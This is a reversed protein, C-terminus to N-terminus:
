SFYPFNSIEWGSAAEIIYKNRGELLRLGFLWCISDM